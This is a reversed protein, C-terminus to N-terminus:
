FTIEFSEPLDKPPPLEEVGDVRAGPPGIRLRACLDEVAQAAGALVVEVSGDRRNRVIGRVGLRQAEARVWWRFGVGQVRGRIRLSRCSEAGEQM